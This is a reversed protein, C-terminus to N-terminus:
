KFTINQITCDVLLEDIELINFKLYINNDDQYWVCVPVIISKMPTNCSLCPNQRKLNLKLKRKESSHPKELIKSDVPVICQADQSKESSTTAILCNSHKNETAAIVPESVETKTTSLEIKLDKANETSMKMLEEYM